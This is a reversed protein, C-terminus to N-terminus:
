KTVPVVGTAAHNRAQLAPSESGSVFKNGQAKKIDMAQQYAQDTVIENPSTAVFFATIICAVIVLLPGSIVLWVHGFHWWPKSEVSNDSQM